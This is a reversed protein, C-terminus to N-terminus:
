SVTANSLKDTLGSGMGAWVVLRSRDGQATSEDFLKMREELTLGAEFDKMINNAIARGDCGDPWGMTRNVEDFALSRTTDTLKASILVDKKAQSYGSEHTFLFRTGLAVGSAGLTLLAAIQSGTAIGGAAIVPPGDPIAAM